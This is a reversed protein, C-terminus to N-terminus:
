EPFFNEKAKYESRYALYKEKGILGLDLKQKLVLLKRFRVPEFFKRNLRDLIDFAASLPVMILFFLHLVISIIYAPETPPNNIPIITSSFLSMVAASCVLLFLSYVTCYIVMVERKVRTFKSRESVSFCTLIIWCYPILGILWKQSFGSLDDIGIGKKFYRVRTTAYSWEGKHNKSYGYRDGVRSRVLNRANPVLAPLLCYKARERYELNSAFERGYANFYGPTDREFADNRVLGLTNALGFTIDGVTGEYAITDFVGDKEIIEEYEIAINRSTPPIYLITLVMAWSGLIVLITKWFVHRYSLMEFDNLRERWKDIM